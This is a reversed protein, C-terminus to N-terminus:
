ASMRHRLAAIAMLFCKAISEELVRVARSYARGPFGRQFAVDIYHERFFTTYTTELPIRQSLRSDLSQTEATQAGDILLQPPKRNQNPRVGAPFRGKEVHDRQEAVQHANPSLFIACSM